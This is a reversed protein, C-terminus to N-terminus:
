NENLITIPHQGPSFVPLFKHSTVVNCLTCIHSETDVNYFSLSQNECDLFVGVMSLDERVHVSTPPDTNVHFGKGEEYFLTWFGHLPTVPVTSTRKANDRAVGVYWSLQGCDGVAKDVTEDRVKVEWYHQESGFSQNALVHPHRQISSKITEKEKIYQATKGEQTVRIDSHATNEDMTINEKFAKVQHWDELNIGEKVPRKEQSNETGKFLLKTESKNQELKMQDRHKLLICVVTSLASLLVLSLVLTVIFAEKWAGSTFLVQENKIETEEKNRWTLKPQPSWGESSCTVNVQGGGGSAVSLVPASGTVNMSVNAKEYWRENSVHCVYEGRDELTVRELTLSVNGRELGGTLSVRGRYRPDVPTEQIKHDKYLLAPSNSNESRYWRVELPEVNFIPSLECPLTVSANLRTLIPGNPVTLTFVEPAPKQATITVTFAALILVRLLVGSRTIRRNTEM